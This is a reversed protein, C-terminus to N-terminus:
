GYSKGRMIGALRAAREAPLTALHDALFRVAAAKADQASNFPAGTVLNGEEDEQPILVIEMLGENGLHNMSASYGPGTAMARVRIFHGDQSAFWEEVQQWEIAM